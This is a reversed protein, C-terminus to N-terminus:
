ERFMREWLLEVDFPNQNLVIYKLHNEITYLANGIAAGVTGVGTIGDDTVVQVLLAAIQPGGPVRDRQPEYFISSPMVLVSGKGKPPPVGFSKIPLTRVETIKM